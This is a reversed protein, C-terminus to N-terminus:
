TVFDGHFNLLTLDGSPRWDSWNNLPVIINNKKPQKNEGCTNLDINIFKKGAVCGLLERTLM